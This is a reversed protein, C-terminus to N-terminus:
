KQEPFLNLETDFQALFELSFARYTYSIPLLIVTGIYPIAILLLGICCTLLCAVLVCLGVGIALVAVFLAYLIFPGPHKRLYDLFHQWAQTARLNLKYMIPIVFNDLFFSVFVITIIAVFGLLGVGVAIAIPEWTPGANDFINVVSVFLLAGILLFLTLCVLAFGVRWLFLSNALNRFRKWPATIEARNHVVNDLFIFKGRSSLWLLAAVVAAIFLIGLVIVVFWGPNETLWEWVKSPVQGIERSSPGGGRGGRAPINGSPSGGALGALWASFGIIFWKSWEFPNFLAKKM